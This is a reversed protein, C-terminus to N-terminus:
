ATAESAASGKESARKSSKRPRKPTSSQNAHAKISRKKVSTSKGKRAIKENRAVSKLYNFLETMRDNLRKSEENLVESVRREVQGRTEKLQSTFKDIQKKGNERAERSKLDFDQVLRKVRGEYQNFHRSLNVVLNSKALRKLDSKLRTQLM